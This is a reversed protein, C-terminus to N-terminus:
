VLRKFIRAEVGSVRVPQCASLCVPLLSQFFAFESKLRRRRERQRRM